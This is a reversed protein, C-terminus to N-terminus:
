HWAPLDSSWADAAILWKNAVRKWVTLYKGRDKTKTGDAQKIFTVEFAPNGVGHSLPGRLYERIADRGHVAQHHPPLYVADPAYAAVLDDLRGANWHRGWANGTEGIVTTASPTKAATRTQRASKNASRKRAKTRQM